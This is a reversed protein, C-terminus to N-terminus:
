GILLSFLVEQITSLVLYYIGGLTAAGGLLLLTALFFDNATSERWTFYRYLLMGWADRWSHVLKAHTEEEKQSQKAWAKSPKRSRRVGVPRQRIPWKSALFAM